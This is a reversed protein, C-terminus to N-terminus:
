IFLSPFLKHTFCMILLPTSMIFSLLPDLSTRDERGRLVHNLAPAQLTRQLSHFLSSAETNRNHEQGQWSDTELTKKKKLNLVSNLM